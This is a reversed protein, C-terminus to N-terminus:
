RLPANVEVNMTHRLVFKQYDKTDNLVLTCSLSKETYKWGSVVLSGTKNTLSYGQTTRAAPPSQYFSTMYGRPKFDVSGSSFGQPNDPLGAFTLVVSLPAKEPESGSAKDFLALRLNSTKGQPDVELRTVAARVTFSAPEAQGKVPAIKFTGRAGPAALAVLTLAFIIGSIHRGIM